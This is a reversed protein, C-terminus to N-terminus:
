RRRKNPQSRVHDELLQAFSRGNQLKPRPRVLHNLTRDFKRNFKQLGRDFLKWGNM